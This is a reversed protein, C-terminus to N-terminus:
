PNLGDVRRKELVELAEKWVRVGQVIEEDNIILPPIVRVTQRGAGVLLLGRERCLNIFETPDQRFEVGILLGVGRVEAVLEPFAVCVEELQARLQNGIRAVHDLFTSARIREVVHVGVRTPLPAGGFTTGHDGPGLADAVRDSALMAGIPIGNALPKATTLVDPVCEKAYHHHAWFKGTRGLGCQIEDYILLANVEDCRKRLAQLFAESAINVGGEGQIPEVIVGCTDKTIAKIANVDDFTEHRIHPILPEFPQRYKVTATVSLAGMSRGHFGNTFAVIGTKEEGAVMKGWKRAL